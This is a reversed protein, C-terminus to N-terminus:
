KLTKVEEFEELQDSNEMIKFEDQPGYIRDKLDSVVEDLADLFKNLDEKFLFIKYKNFTDVGIQQKETITIYFDDM